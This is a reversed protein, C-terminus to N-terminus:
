RLRLEKKHEKIYRLAKGADSPNEGNQPRFTQGTIEKLAWTVDRRAWSWQEWLAAWYSVPPNNKDNVALPQPPDLMEVLTRVYSFERTKIQGLYRVCARTVDKDSYLGMQRFVDKEVRDYQLEGLARIVAATVKPKRKRTEKDKFVKALARTSSKGPINALVHAAAVQVGAERELVFDEIEGRSSMDLEEALQRAAQKDLGSARYALSARAPKGFEENDHASMAALADAIEPADESGVAADYANLLTEAVEPSATTVREEEELVVEPEQTDEAEQAVSPASSLLMVPALWSAFRVCDFNM